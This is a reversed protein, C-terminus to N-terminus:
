YIVRFRDSVTNKRSVTLKYYDDPSKQL